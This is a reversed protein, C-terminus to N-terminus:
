GEGMGKGDRKSALCPDVGDRRAPNVCVILFVISRIGCLLGCTTHAVRHVDGIHHQEEAGVLRSEDGAFVDADIASHGSLHNVM